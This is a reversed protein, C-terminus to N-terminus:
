DEKRVVITIDYTSTATTGITTICLDGTEGSGTDQLGNIHMDTFDISGEGTLLLATIDTTHDWLVKVYTYGQIAWRISMITLKSPETGDPGILGSKDIKVAATEATDVYINTLHVAAFKKPDQVELTTNTVTAAM